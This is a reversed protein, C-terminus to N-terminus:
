LELDRGKSTSLTKLKSSMKGELLADINRKATSIERHRHREDCWNEYLADRERELRAKEERMEGIAPVKGNPFLEALAKRAENCAELERRHALYFARRNTSTRYARWADRNSLYRGSARIARGVRRIEAEKAGLADSADSLSKASIGAAADLEARTEFGAEQVFALSESLKRLNSARVRSECAAGRSRIADDIEAALSQRAPMRGHALRHRINADIVPWEYDVGLARGAINRDREPHSYTIRGRSIKCGIAYESGLLEAFSDFDVARSQVDRVAARIQQKQTQYRSPKAGDHESAAKAEQYRSEYASSAGAGRNREAGIEAREKIEPRRQAWYERDSVRERAPSLLDVQNLGRARCMDMVARKLEEHCRNTAHHKGGARWESEHTMWSRVPEDTSRVSCFVIHAHVNGAGNHGEPHTCVVGVHGGFWERAFGLAMSHAEEVTLGVDKDRPDFSFVYHHAKVDGPLRNKRYLENAAHAALPYSLAECNVSDILFDERLIPEGDADRLMKGSLEDHRYMLYDIAAQYDGNKVPIHKLVAM